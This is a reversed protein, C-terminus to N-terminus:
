ESLWKFLEQPSDFLFLESKVRTKFFTFWEEITMSDKGNLAYANGEQWGSVTRAFYKKSQFNEPVLSVKSEDLTLIGILPYLMEKVTEFSVLETVLSDSIIKKM